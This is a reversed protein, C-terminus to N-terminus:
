GVNYGLDRAVEDVAKEVAKNMQAERERKLEGSAVKKRYAETEGPEKIRCGTRALDELHARRGAAVWKGTAPSEYAPYIKEESVIMPITFIRKTAVGDCHTPPFDREEYKRFEDFTVGCKLCEYSYIPM